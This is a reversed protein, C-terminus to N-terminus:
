VGSANRASLAQAVKPQEATAAQSPKGLCEMEFSPELVVKRRGPEFNVHRLNHSAIQLAYLMVAARKTDIRQELLLRIIESLELQIANGDELLPFVNVRPGILNYHFYCFRRDRLAPSGCRVGNSKIHECRAPKRPM